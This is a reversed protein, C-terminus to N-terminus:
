GCSWDFVDSELDIRANGCGFNLGSMEEIELYYPTLDDPTNQVPFATGGLHSRGYLEDAWARFECDDDFPDQYDDDGDEVPASGTNPDEREALWVSITPEVDDWANCGGDDGDHEGARRPDAPPPTPGGDFENARLWILAFAGGIIDELLNLQPHARAGGLDRLFPDESDLDGTVPSDPDAFQGEGQFFAIAPFEPGRRQYDAPLRLTLAHMMPRGTIPGRPWMASDIAPGHSGCWGARVPDTRRLEPAATPLPAGSPEMLLKEPDEGFGLDYAKMGVGSM